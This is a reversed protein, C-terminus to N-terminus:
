REALPTTDPYESGRLKVVAAVGVVTAGVRVVGAAPASAEFGGVSRVPGYLPDAPAPAWWM